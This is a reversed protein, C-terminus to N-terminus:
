VIPTESVAPTPPWTNGPSRTSTITVRWGGTGFATLSTQLSQLSSRASTTSCFTLTSPMSRLTSGVLVWDTTAWVAVRSTDTWSAWFSATAAWIPVIDSASRRTPCASMVGTRVTSTLSTLDVAGRAGPGRNGSSRRRIAPRRAAAGARGPSRAPAVREITTTCPSVEVSTWTGASRRPAPAHAAGRDGRPSAVLHFAEEGEGGAGGQRQPRDGAGGRGLHELIRAGALGDHHRLVLRRGEPEVIRGALDDDGLRVGQRQHRGGVAAEVHAALLEADGVDQDVVRLVPQRLHDVHPDAVVDRAQLGVQLGRQGSLVDLRGVEGVPYQQGALDRGRRDGGAGLGDGLTIRGLVDIGLQGDALGLLHLDVHPHDLGRVRRDAVEPEVDRDL